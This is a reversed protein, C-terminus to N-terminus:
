PVAAPPAGTPELPAVATVTVTPGHVPGVELTGTVTVTVLDDGSGVVVHAGPAVQAGLAAAGTDGRAAALATVHAADVLRNRQGAALVVAVAFVAVVVLVPLVAATEATVMGDDRRLARLNVRVRLNM